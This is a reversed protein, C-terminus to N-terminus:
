KKSYKIIRSLTEKVEAIHMFEDITTDRHRVSVIGRQLTKSDIKLCFPTGISNAYDIIANQDELKM